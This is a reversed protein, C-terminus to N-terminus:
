SHTNSHEEKEQNEGIITDIELHGFESCQEAEIPRHEIGVRGVLVGRSDKKNGRMRYKRGRHRLHLYLSGKNHKDAWSYQYIREHSITSRGQKPLVGSIQEPSYDEAILDDVEEKRAGEFKTTNSKRTLRAAYKQNALGSRHAGNSKDSNRELERYITSKHVKLRSAIASTSIGEAIMIEIAYRQECTLHAM